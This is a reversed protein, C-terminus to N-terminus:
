ETMSIPPPSFHFQLDTQLVAPKETLESPMKNNIAPLLSCAPLEHNQLTQKLGQAQLRFQQPSFHLQEATTDTKYSIFQQDGGLEQLKHVSRSHFSDWHRCSCMYLQERDRLLWGQAPPASCTGKCSAQWFTRQKEGPVYKTAWCLLPVDFVGPSLCVGKNQLLPRKCTCTPSSCICFWFYNLKSLVDPSWRVWGRQQLLNRWIKNNVGINFIELSLSEM